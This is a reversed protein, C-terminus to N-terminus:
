SKPNSLPRPTPKSAPTSRPLYLVVRCSTQDQCGRKSQICFSDFVGVDNGSIFSYQLHIRESQSYM